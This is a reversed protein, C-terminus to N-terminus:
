CVSVRRLLPKGPQWKVARGGILAAQGAFTLCLSDALDPSRMGRRKM